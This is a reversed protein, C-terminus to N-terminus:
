KVPEIIFKGKSYTLPNNKLLQYQVSACYGMPKNEVKTEIKKKGIYYVLNYM